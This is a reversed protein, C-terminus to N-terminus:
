VVKFYVKFTTGQGVTSDVTIKGGMAEIQMKILYLGLGAGEVHSHFRGYLSFIKDRNKNLDIGLGNDKVSLYLYNNTNQTTLEIKPLRKPSCYKIANTLLNQVISDVYSRIGIVTSPKQFNTIIQAQAAKIKEDNQSYIKEFVEVIDIHEKQSNVEKKISIIQHLDKIVGDMNKGSEEVTKIIIANFSNSPNNTDYLALLGIINAVPERLNHATIYAFRQLEKNSNQLQQTTKQYETISNQLYTAQQNISIQQKELLIKQAKLESIVKIKNYEFLSVMVLISIFLTFVFSFYQDKNYLFSNRLEQEAFGTEAIFLYTISLLVIASWALGSNRGVMTYALIPGLILWLVTYSYLGGEIFSINFLAVYCLFILVNGWTFINGKWRFFLLMILLSGGILTSPFHYTLGLTSAMLELIFIISIVAFYGGIMSRARQKEEYNKKLKNPILYDILNTLKKIM